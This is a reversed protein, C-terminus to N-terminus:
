KVRVVDRVTNIVALREKSTERAVNLSAELRQVEDQALVLQQMLEPDASTTNKPDVSRQETIASHHVYGYQNGENEWTILFWGGTFRGLVKWWKSDSYIRRSVPSVPSPEEQVFTGKKVRLERRADEGDIFGKRMAAGRNAAVAGAAYGTGSRWWYAGNLLADLKIWEGDYPQRTPGGGLPDYMATRERDADYFRLAVAHNFYDNNTWRRYHLPLEEYDGGVIFTAGSELMHIIRSESWTGYAYSIAADKPWWEGMFNTMYSVTTGGKNDASKKRIDNVPHFNRHKVDAAQFAFEGAYWTCDDVTPERWQSPTNPWYGFVGFQPDDRLTAM